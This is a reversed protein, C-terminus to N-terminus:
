GPPWTAHRGGLVHVHLHFVTQGGDRGTNAVVRYGNEAIGKQKALTACVQLLHGLLATDGAEAHSLSAIHKRPVVLLHVPAQPHIDEFAVAQDDEYVMKSPITKAAIKCFLCESM